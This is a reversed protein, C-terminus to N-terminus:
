GKFVKIMNWMPLFIALAMGMVALGLVATMLPEIMVTLNKITTRVELNFYECLSDLMMPLSGSKEGISIMYGVLRPFFRSSMVGGSIGKGDAVEQKIREIEKTLVVNGITMGVIDLTKLVPLGSQYLISLMSAFRLMTIKTYVRSIIPAKFKLDDWIYRGRGTKIAAKFLFFLGIVGAIVLYWYHTLVNGIIIMITTPLPLSVSMTSYIGAFQPIVFVSLAIVAMILAVIVMIPYRMAASINTRNEMDEELMNSLRFLVKDLIGASEGAVVTNVYLQSFVGPHKSMAQSLSIGGEVDHIVQNLAKKLAQDDTQEALVGLGELIPVAAKIIVAFQRSFIVLAKPSVTGSNDKGFNFSVGGAKPKAKFAISVPMYGMKALETTVGIESAADVEGKVMRGTSDVAKYVYTAM